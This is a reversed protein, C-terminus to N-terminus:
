VLGDQKERAMRRRRSRLFIITRWWVAVILLIMASFMVIGRGPYDGLFVRSGYATLAFAVAASYTLVHPGMEGYRWARRNEFFYLVPFVWSGLLGVFLLLLWLAEAVGSLSDTFSSM